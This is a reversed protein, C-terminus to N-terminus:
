PTVTVNTDAALPASQVSNNPDSLSQDSPLSTQAPSSQDSSSNDQINNQVPPIIPTSPFNFHTPSSSPQSLSPASEFLDAYPFKSEHFLVDNSIFLKGSPSLCKFGKYSTSYGM